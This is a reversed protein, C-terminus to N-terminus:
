LPAPGAWNLDGGGGRRGEGRKRGRGKREKKRKKEVKLYPRVLYGLSDRFKCNEQKLRGLESIVCTHSVM